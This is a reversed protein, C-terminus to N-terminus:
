AIASAARSMALGENRQHGLGGGDGMGAVRRGLGVDGGQEFPLAIRIDDDVVRGEAGAPREDFEHRRIHLAGELTQAKPAKRAACCADRRISARPDPVM